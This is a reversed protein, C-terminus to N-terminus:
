IKKKKNLVTKTTTRRVGNKVRNAMYIVTLTKILCLLFWEFTMYFSIEYTEKQAFYYQYLTYFTMISFVFTEVINVIM